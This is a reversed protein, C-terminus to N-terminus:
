PFHMRSYANEFNEPPARGGAGRPIAHWPGVYGGIM